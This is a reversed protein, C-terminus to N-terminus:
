MTVLVASFAFPTSAKAYALVLTLSGMLVLCLSFFVNVARVALVLEATEPTMYSYWGYM